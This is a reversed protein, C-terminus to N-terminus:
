KIKSFFKYCPSILITALMAKIIGGIIFPYLGWELVKDIPAGTIFGLQALGFIFTSASAVLAVLATKWFSKLVGRDAYYGMIFAAPIFGIIYGGTKGIISGFGGSFGAFVPLGIAGELAYFITALTAGRAGLSLGVLCVGLTQGTIPVMPLPITFQAFAAILMSGLFAKIITIGVARSSFFKVLSVLAPSASQINNENM